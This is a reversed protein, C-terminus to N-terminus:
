NNQVGIIGTMGISGKHSAVEGVLATADGATESTVEGMLETPAARAVEGILETPAGVEVLASLASM